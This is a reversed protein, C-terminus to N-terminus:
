DLGMSQLVRDIAVTLLAAELQPYKLCLEAEIQKRLEDRSICTNSSLKSPFGAPITQKENTLEATRTIGMGPADPKIESNVTTPLGKAEMSHFFSPSPTEVLNIASGRTEKSLYPRVPAAPPTYAQPTILSMGLRQAKEYALDTLVVHDNITLSM